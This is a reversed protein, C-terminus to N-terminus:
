IINKKLAHLEIICQFPSFWSKKPTNWYKANCIKHWIFLYWIFNIGNIENSLSDNSMCNGFIITTGRTFLTYQLHPWKSLAFFKRRARRFSVVYKLSRKIRGKLYQSDRYILPSCLQPGDFKSPIRNDLLQVQTEWKQNSEPSDVSNKEFRWNQCSM